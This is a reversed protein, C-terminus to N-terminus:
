SLCIGSFPHQGTASITQILESIIESLSKHTIENNLGIKWKLIKLEKLIIKM